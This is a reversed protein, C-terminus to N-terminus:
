LGVLVRETTWYDCVTSKVHRIFVDEFDGEGSVEFVSETLKREEDLDLCVLRLDTVSVEIDSALPEGGRRVDVCVGAMGWLRTCNGLDFEYYQSWLLHGDLPYIM